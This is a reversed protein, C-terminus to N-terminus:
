RFLSRSFVPRDRPDRTRFFISPASAGQLFGWAQLSGLLRHFNKSCRCQQVVSSGPGPQSWLGQWELQMKLFTQDKPFLWACKCPSLLKSAQNKKKRTILIVLQVTEWKMPAKQAPAPLGGLRLDCRPFTNETCCRFPLLCANFAKIKLGCSSLSSRLRLAKCTRVQVPWPHALSRIARAGARCPERTRVGDGREVM